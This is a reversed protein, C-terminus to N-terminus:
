QLSYFMALLVLVVLLLETRSIIVGGVGGCVSNYVGVDNFGKHIPINKERHDSTLHPWGM